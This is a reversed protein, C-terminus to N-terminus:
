GILICRRFNINYPIWANIDVLLYNLNKSRIDRDYSEIGRKRLM